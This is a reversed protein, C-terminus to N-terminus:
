IPMSKELQINSLLSQIKIGLANAIALAKKVELKEIERKGYRLANITSVSIKTKKALMTNSIDKKKMFVDLLSYKMVEKTHDVLQVFDMEHYLNYLNMMDKISIVSFLAEFTIELHLFLHMYAYGIWGFMDYIDLVYDSGSSNFMESYIKEMSSFALLTVNSKELEDIPLSYAITREIYDVTNKEYYSRGILYSLTNCYKDVYDDSLYIM